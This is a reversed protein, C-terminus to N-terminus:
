QGNHFLKSVRDRLLTMPTLWEAPFLSSVLQTARLFVSLPESRWEDSVRHGIAEFRQADCAAAMM